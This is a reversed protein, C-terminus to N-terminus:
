PPEIPPHQPEYYDMPMFAHDCKHRLEYAVFLGGITLGIFFWAIAIERTENDM